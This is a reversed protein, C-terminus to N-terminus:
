LNFSLRKPNWLTVKYLVIVVRYVVCVSLTTIPVLKTICIMYINLM